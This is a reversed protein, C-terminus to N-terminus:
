ICFLVPVVFTVFFLAFFVIGLTFVFLLYKVVPVM